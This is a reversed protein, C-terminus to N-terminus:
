IVLLNPMTLLVGDTARQTAQIELTAVPGAQDMQQKLLSLGAHSETANYAPIDIRTELDSQSGVEGKTLLVQPAQEERERAEHQKPLIVHRLLDLAEDSDTRQARYFGYDDPLLRLLDGVVNSANKTGAAGPKRLLMREERYGKEERYLDSVAATYGQMETIN